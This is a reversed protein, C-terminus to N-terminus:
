VIEFSLFSPIIEKVKEPYKEITPAKAEYERYVHDIILQSDSFAKLNYVGLKYALRLGVLLAEYEAENNSTRFDFWLTQKTIINDLSAHIM